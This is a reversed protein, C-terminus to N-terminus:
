RRDFTALRQMLFDQESQIMDKLAYRWAPHGKEIQAGHPIHFTASRWIPKFDSRNEQSRLLVTITHNSRLIDLQFITDTLAGLSRIVGNFDLQHATLLNTRDVFQDLLSKAQVLNDRESNQVPLPQSSKEYYRESEIAKEYKEYTLIDTPISEGVAAKKHSVRGDLGSVSTAIAPTDTVLANITATSPATVIEESEKGETISSPLQGAKHENGLDELVIKSTDIAPTYTDLADVAATDTAGETNISSSSQAAAQKKAKVQARKKKNKSYNKGPPCFFAKELEYVKLLDIWITSYFQYSRYFNTQGEANLIHNHQQMALRYQECDKNSRKDNILIYCDDNGFLFSTDRSFFRAQPSAFPM